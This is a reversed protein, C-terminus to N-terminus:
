INLVYSCLSVQGTNRDNPNQFNSNTESKSIRIESKVLGRKVIVKKCLHKEQKM